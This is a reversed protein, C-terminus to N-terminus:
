VCGVIAQARIVQAELLHARAVGVMRVGKGIAALRHRQQRVLIVHQPQVGCSGEVDKDSVRVRVRVPSSSYSSLRDAPSQRAWV